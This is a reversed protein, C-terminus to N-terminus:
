RETEKRQARENKREAMDVAIALLRIAGMNSKSTNNHAAETDRATGKDDDRCCEAIVLVTIRFMTSLPIARAFVM